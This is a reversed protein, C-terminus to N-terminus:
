SDPPNAHKPSRMDYIPPPEPIPGIWLDFESAQVSEGNFREASFGIVDEGYSRVTWRVM